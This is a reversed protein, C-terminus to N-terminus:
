TANRTIKPPKPFHRRVIDATKKQSEIRAAANAAYLDYKAKIAEETTSEEDIWKRLVLVAKSIKAASKKPWLHKVTEACDLACALLPKRDESWPESTIRKGILWLMWDGRPCADWAKQPSAFDKLWVLADRCPNLHRIRKSLGARNATTTTM